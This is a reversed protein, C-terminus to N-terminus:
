RGFLDGTNNGPKERITFLPRDFDLSVKENVGGGDRNKLITVELNVVRERFVEEEGQAKEMAENYLGLVLHADNEIDGAERLNDLRVKNKRETSRGLQAGLIIPISLSKATELIQESVKQIELQRTQYRGKIKIKQLYDIFVAGIDHRENLHALTNSLEDVHFPEDILVLRGSNTFEKFKEKAHEIKVKEEKVNGMHKARLYYELQNLNQAEKDKHILEKSIICLLKLALQRRSGEYIFYFFSRETYAETMNLFLNMLFTTKGHSPRGAVITIAEQPIVILRDLSKYGTKLGERTQLIDEELDELTYPRIAKVVAKARLEVTKETLLERFKELEGKELLASGERLFEECDKRVRERAKKERYDLIKPELMEPPIDLGTTITDLFDKSDIPDQLTEEYALAEDIADQRGRDTHIDHKGLICNAKWKAGGQANKVLERFPEIGKTRIFGDPDYGEPLTVVFARLGKRNVTELSKEIGKMGADDSDLALIVNKVGATIMAELQVERLTNGGVAVVGRLGKVTPTLADFFGETVIQTREGRAKHLFFPTDKSGEAESLPKYKDSEKEEEKLPRTLRGWLSKLRGASDRYPIVLKYDKRWDLWKLVRNVEDVSYDKNVLYDITEKQSPFFGLEGAEIEIETYGRLYDGLAKKSNDDRLQAVFFALAAELLSERRNQEELRRFDEETWRERWTELTAPDVGARKALEKTADMWSLGQAKMLYQVPGGGVGCRTHCKWLLSEPNISFATPNDGNHLPCPARWNRGSRKLKPIDGYVVEATLRPFIEEDFVEWPKKTM